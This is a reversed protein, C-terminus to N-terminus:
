LSFNEVDSVIWKNNEYIMKTFFKTNKNDKGLSLFVKSVDYNVDCVISARYKGDIYDFTSKEKDIQLGIMNYKNKFLFYNEELVSYVKNKVNDTAADIADKNEENLAKFVSNYFSEVTQQIETFLVDSKMNIDINVDPKDYVYVEESKIIGWPFNEEIQIKISGDTPFPGVKKFEKVTKGTDDGNIYVKANEFKSHITIYNANIGSDVVENKMLIINKENTFDGYKSDLVSKIKYEGPVLNLIEKNGEIEKDNLYVKEGENKINIKLSFTTLEIKYREGLFKKDSKIKLINSKSNKLDDILSNVLNDKGKYYTAFPKLKERSVEEGGVEVINQIKRINGEILSIQLEKILAEKSTKANGFTYGLEFILFVLFFGVFLKNKIIFGKKDFGKFKEYKRKVYNKIELLKYNWSM